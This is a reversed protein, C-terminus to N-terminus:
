PADEDAQASPAPASRALWRGFRAVAYAVLAGALTLGLMVALEGGAERGGTGVFGMLFVASFSGGAMVVWALAAWGVVMLSKGIFVRM